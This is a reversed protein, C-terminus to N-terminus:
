QNFDKAKTSEPTKDKKRKKQPNGTETGSHSADVDALLKSPNKKGRAAQQERRFRLLEKDSLRTM